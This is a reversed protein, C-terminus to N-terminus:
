WAFQWEKSSFKKVNGVFMYYLKKKSCESFNRTHIVNNTLILAEGQKHTNGATTRHKPRCGCPLEGLTELFGTGEVLVRPQMLVGCAEQM